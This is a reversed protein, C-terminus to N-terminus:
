KTPNVREEFDAKAEAFDVKTGAFKRPVAEYLKNGGSRLQRLREKTTYNPAPIQQNFHWLAKLAPGALRAQEDPTLTAGLLFNMCERNSYGSNLTTALTEVFGPNSRLRATAAERVENNSYVSARELLESFDRQPDLTAIKAVLDKSSPGPNAISRALGSVGASGARLLFYGGVVVGITLCLGAFVVWTMRLAPLPVVAGLKPNLSLVAVLMTALPILFAPPSFLARPIFGPRVYSAVFVFMLAGLAITAGSVLVHLAPRGLRLSDFGGSATVCLLAVLLLLWLPALIFLAPTAWQNDNPHKGAYEGLLRPLPLLLVLAALGVCINGITQLYPSATPNM